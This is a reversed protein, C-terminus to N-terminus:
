SLGEGLLYDWSYREVAIRFVAADAASLAQELAAYFKLWEFEMMTCDEATSVTAGRRHKWGHESMEGILAPAPVTIDKGSSKSVQVKGALLVFGHGDSEEGETIFERGAEAEYIEAVAHLTDIATKSSEGGLEGFPEIKMLQADISERDMNQSGPYTHTRGTEGAQGAHHLWDRRPTLEAVCKM